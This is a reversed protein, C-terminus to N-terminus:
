EVEYLKYLEYNEDGPNLHYDLLEKGETVKPYLLELYNLNIKNVLPLFWLLINSGLLSVLNQNVSRFYVFKKIENQEFKYTNLDPILM